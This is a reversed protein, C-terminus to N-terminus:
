FDRDFYTHRDDDSTKRLAVCRAGIGLDWDRVLVDPRLLRQASRLRAARRRLQGRWSTPPAPPASTALVEYCPYTLAHRIARSVSRRDADDFVVVGGASLLRNVYYFETMVQEFRHLGDIFALQVSVGSSLLAPLVIESPEERFDILRAYGARRLHELGLGQWKGRQFPDIITHVAGNDLAALAECIFLASIGYALGVELTRSPRLAAILRQLLEGTARDIHSQADPFEPHNLTLAGGGAREIRSTRLLERLVANHGPEAAIDPALTATLM